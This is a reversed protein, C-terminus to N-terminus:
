DYLALVINVPGVEFLLLSIFCLTRNIVCHGIYSPEEQQRQGKVVSNSTQKRCM